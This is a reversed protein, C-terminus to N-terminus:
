VVLEQLGLRVYDLETEIQEESIGEQRRRLRYQATQQEFNALISPAEKAM